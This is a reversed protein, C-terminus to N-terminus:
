LEVQNAIRNNYLEDYFNERRIYYANMQEQTPIKYRKQELQKVHNCTPCEETKAEEAIEFADYPYGEDNTQDVSLSWVIEM